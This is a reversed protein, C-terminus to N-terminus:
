KQLSMVHFTLATIRARVFPESGFDGYIAEAEKTFGNGWVPMSTTGHGPAMTRGDILRYVWLFPFAGGNREAIRTLDAPKVTLVEAVPGDGEGTAGHCSACHWGYLDRGLDDGGMADQAAVPAYSAAVLAALSAAAFLKLRRFSM